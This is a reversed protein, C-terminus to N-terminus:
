EDTFDQEGEEKKKLELTIVTGRGDKEAETITFEGDGHSEWRVAKKSDAAKTLLTFSFHIGDPIRKREWLGAVGFPKGDTAHIYHPVKGDPGNKWEYFGDAVILCRRKKFAARFSPKQALTEGRANIMKYGIKMDKAWHPVLGWRLMDLQRFNKGPLKRVVAIDQSPAINYRPPLEITEPLLFHEQITRPPAKLAFRGCM